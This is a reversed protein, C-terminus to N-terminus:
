LIRVITYLAWLYHTKPIQEGDEQIRLFMLSCWTESVPDIEMRLYPPPSVAKLASNLQIFKRVRFQLRQKKCNDM